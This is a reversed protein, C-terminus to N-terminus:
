QAPLPAKSKAIPLVIIPKKFTRSVPLSVSAQSPDLPELFSEQNTRLKFTGRRGLSPDASSNSRNDTCGPIGRGRFLVSDYYRSLNRSMQNYRIFYEFLHLIQDSMKCHRESTNLDV